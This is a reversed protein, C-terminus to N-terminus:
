ICYLCMDTTKFFCVLPIEGRCREGKEMSLQIKPLVRGREEEELRRMRTLQTPQLQTSGEPARQLRILQLKSLKLADAASRMLENMSKLKGINTM